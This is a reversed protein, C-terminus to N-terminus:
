NKRVYEKGFSIELLGQMSKILLLIFLALVVQYCSLWKTVKYLAWQQDSSPKRLGGEWFWAAWFEVLFLSHLKQVFM